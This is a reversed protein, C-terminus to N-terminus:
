NSTLITAGPYDAPNLLPLHANYHQNIVKIIENAVIAYGKANPHVGDLSFLTTHLRDTSFYNAYYVQGDDTKLGTTNDALQAMIANMDAIALGKAQAISKITNNFAATATAVMQAENATLVHQDQLPFTIGNINFPAISAPNETGIVGSTTLLILDNATAHRAKGYLQGLQTAYAQLLPNGSNAAYATIQASLSPLDEDEILLANVQGPELKLPSIRGNTAASLFQYLGVLLEVQPNAAITEAPLPAYPVTTFYPISTVNPITAVVGKAGNATLTEIIANYVGAFYTPDTIDNSGYTYPNTNGTQDVGVGGSTAFALVDNSGIWNTFFTPNMSMADGLVTAEPTTAHRVFYPNATGMAVGALNGYGSLLLHFSKASPVGMNHYAKKQLNAVEITPTGSIVEPGGASANIIRRAAAIQQGGLLLGGLNNVDDEFSPQTFEGGGVIAFQKALLNPFSYQQGSKYVTGDMFGATLSNGIAVYSTFDADGASYTNSNIENEFEPECSAFGLALVSLYIFKNKM